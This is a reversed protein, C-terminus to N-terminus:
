HFFPKPPWLVSKLQWQDLIEAQNVWMYKFDVTFSIVIFVASSTKDLKLGSCALYNWTVGYWIWMNPLRKLKTLQWKEKTSTVSSINAKKKVNNWANRTWIPTAKVPCIMWVNRLMNVLNFFAELELRWTLCYGGTATVNIKRWRLVSYSRNNENARPLLQCGTNQM